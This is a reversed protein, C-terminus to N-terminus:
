VSGKCTTPCDGSQYYRNPSQGVVKLFLRLSVAKRPLTVAAKSPFGTQNYIPVQHKSNALMQDCRLERDIEANFFTFVKLVSSNPGIIQYKSWKVNITEFLTKFRFPFKRGSFM